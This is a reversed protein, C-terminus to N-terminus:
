HDNTSNSISNTKIIHKFTMMVYELFLSCFANVKKLLKKKSWFCVNIHYSGAIAM